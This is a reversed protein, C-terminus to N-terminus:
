TKLEGRRTSRLSSLTSLKHRQKSTRQWLTSFSQERLPKYKMFSSGAATASVQPTISYYSTFLLNAAWLFAASLLSQQGGESAIDRPEKTKKNVKECGVLHPKRRWTPFLSSGKVRSHTAKIDSLSTVLQLHLCGEGAQFTKFNALM